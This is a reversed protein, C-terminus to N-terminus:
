TCSICFKIHQGILKVLSKPDNCAVYKKFPFYIFVNMCEAYFTITTKLVFCLKDTDNLIVCEPNIILAANFVHERIILYLYSTFLSAVCM